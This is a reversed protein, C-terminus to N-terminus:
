FPIDEEYDFAQRKPQDELSLLVSDINSVGIISGYGAELLKRNGQTVTANQDSAKRYGTVYLPKETLEATQANFMALGDAETQVIVTADALASAHYGRAKLFLAKLERDMPYESLVLGNNLIIETALEENEVMLHGCPLFAIVRQDKVLATRIVTEGCGSAIDAVVAFGAKTFRDTFFEAAKFGAYTPTETGVIAISRTKLLSPDGQYYFWLPMRGRSPPEVKLVITPVNKLSQPFCEDLYGIVGIEENAIRELFDEAYQCYDEWDQLTLTELTNRVRVNYKRRWRRPIAKLQRFVYEDDREHKPLELGDELFELITAIGIGDLKLQMAHLYFTPISYPTRM